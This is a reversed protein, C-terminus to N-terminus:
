RWMEKRARQLAEIFKDLTEPGEDQRLTAYASVAEGSKEGCGIQMTWDYVNVQLAGDVVPFEEESLIM